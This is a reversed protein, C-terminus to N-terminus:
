LSQKLKKLHQLQAPPLITSNVERLEQYYKQYLTQQRNSWNSIEHLRLEHLKNELVKQIQQLKLQEMQLRQVKLDMTKIVKGIIEGIVPVQADATCVCVVFLLVFLLSKIGKELSGEKKAAAKVQEKEKEETTYCLYAEPSVEVRYVKALPWIYVEKYKKNPDNAKNLSLVKAVEADPLGLVQQVERFRQEYKRMDLLIKMDANNIITQRIIDSSLIDDLDQSVVIAEGYYKRVTKYLYKVYDAMGAKAIAKWAEEILIIKRIGPLKRMKAIFLEMIIITVVPFLIPHDKIVDIEFVIFRQNLLDLNEKANLLYDYEGGKYYPRLVYLFNAVDFDKDKVGETQLVAVFEDRLFDYFSDFCRFDVEKEFYLQLANSLAVYESRVFSETDKKWLAVLLTKISEKKETDPEGSVYFPNFSIPHTPSYTFYYGGLLTCLGQYSNGMDVVLSHAGSVYYGHLLHNTFFSKGSGSPGIIIKNRNTALGKRMPEDSLDIHLPKGSIRDGLRIGLPSVSSQYSTELNLLCAATEAFCIFTENIPLDGANGPIGAWYMQPAGTTEIRPRAGMKSIAIASLKRIAPLMERQDTWVLLNNHSRVIQRNGHISENLFENISDRAIANERAYASLSQFRRKKAELQKVMLSPDEIIIYQSYLHNCSLLQGVSSAFGVPFLHQDTSYASYPSHSSCSAPLDDYDCLAFIDAYQEGIQIGDEFCFDRVTGDTHLSLTRNIVQVLEANGLRAIHFSGTEILLQLAQEVQSVFAPLTTDDMLEVPVLHRKLLTSGASDTLKRQKPRLTFFVYCDHHLFPREAFFRESAQQLFDEAQHYDAQYQDQTFWDQKYLITGVPLLQIAKIWAQHLHDLQQAGLTFIEPLQLKYGITLDAMKSVIADQEVAHIPLIDQLSKM